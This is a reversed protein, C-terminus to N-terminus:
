KSFFKRFFSQKKYNNVPKYYACNYGNYCKLYPCVPSTEDILYSELGTKCVPCLIRKPKKKFKM